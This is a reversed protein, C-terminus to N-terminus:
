QADAKALCASCIPREGKRHPAGIRGCYWCEGETRRRAEAERAYQKAAAKRRARDDSDVLRFQLSGGEYRFEEGISELEWRGVYGLLAALRGGVTAAELPLHSEAVTITDLTGDRFHLQMHASIDVDRRAAKQAATLESKQLVSAREIDDCLSIAHRHAENELEKQVKRTRLMGGVFHLAVLGLLLGVVPHVLFGGVVLLGFFTIVWMTRACTYRRQRGKPVWQPVDVTSTAALGSDMRFPFQDGRM